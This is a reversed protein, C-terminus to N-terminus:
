QKTTKLERAFQEETTTNALEGPKYLRNETLMNFSTGTKLDIAINRRDSGFLDAEFIGSSSSILAIM